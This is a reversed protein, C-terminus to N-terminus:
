GCYEANILQIFITFLPKLQLLDFMPKLTPFTLIINSNNANNRIQLPDLKIPINPIALLNHYPHRLNQELVIITYLCFLFFIVIKILLLVFLILMM